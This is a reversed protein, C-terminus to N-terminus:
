GALERRAAPIMGALGDVSAEGRLAGRDRIGGPGAYCCLKAAIKSYEGNDFLCEVPRCGHRLLANRVGQRSYGCKAADGVARGIPVQDIEIQIAADPKNTKNGMPREVSDARSHGIQQSRAGVRMEMECG